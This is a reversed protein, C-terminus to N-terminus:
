SFICIFGRYKVWIIEGGPTSRGRHRTAAKARQAESGLAWCVVCDWLFLCVSLSHAHPLGLSNNTFRWPQPNVSQLAACRNPRASAERLPINRSCLKILTASMGHTPHSHTTSLPQMCPHQTPPLIPTLNRPAHLPYCHARLWGSYISGRALRVIRRRVGMISPSPGGRHDHSCKPIRGLANLARAPQTHQKSLLTKISFKQKNTQKNLVKTQKKTQKNTQTEFVWGIVPSIPHHVCFQYNTKTQKNTQTEFVWGIM